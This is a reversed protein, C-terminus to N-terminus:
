QTAMFEDITFLSKWLYGKKGITSGTPKTKNVTEGIIKRYYEIVEQSLVNKLKIYRNNQYFEIQEQSLIYPQHLQDALM